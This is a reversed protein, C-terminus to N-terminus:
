KVKSSYYRFFRQMTLVYNLYGNNKIDYEEYFTDRYEDSIYFGFNNLHEFIDLPLILNNNDRLRNMFAFLFQHFNIKCPNFKYNLYILYDTDGEDLTLINCNNFEETLKTIKTTDNCKNEIKGNNQLYNFINVLKDLFFLEYVELINNNNLDLIRYIFTYFQNLTFNKNASLTVRKFQDYSNEILIRAQSLLNEGKILTTFNDKTISFAFDFNNLHIAEFYRYLLFIKEISIKQKIEKLTLFDRRTRNLSDIYILSDITIGKNLSEYIMNNKMFLDTYNQILTYTPTYQGVSVLDSYSLYGLTNANNNIFLAFLNAVTCFTAFDIYENHPFYSYKIIRNFIRRM